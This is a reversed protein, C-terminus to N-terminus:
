HQFHGHGPFVVFRTGTRTGPGGLDLRLVDDVPSDATASRDNKVEGVIVTSRRFLIGRIATVVGTDFPTRGLQIPWRDTQTVPRTVQPLSDANDERAVQRRAINLDMRPTLSHGKPNAKLTVERSALQRDLPILPTPLISGFLRCLRRSGFSSRFLNKALDTSLFLAM